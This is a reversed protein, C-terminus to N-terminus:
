SLLGCASARLSARSLFFPHWSAALSSVDSRKRTIVEGSGRLEALRAPRASRTSIIILAPGAFCSLWADQPVRPSSPLFVRPEQRPDSLSFIVILISPFEHWETYRLLWNSGRAVEGGM